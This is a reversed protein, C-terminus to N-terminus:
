TFASSDPYLLLDHLAATCSRVWPRELLIFKTYHQHLPQQDLWYWHHLQKAQWFDGEVALQIMLSQIIEHQLHQHKNTNAHLARQKVKHLKALM